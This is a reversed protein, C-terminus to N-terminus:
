VALKEDLDDLLDQIVALSFARNAEEVDETREHDRLDLALNLIRAGHQAVTPVPPLGPITDRHCLFRGIHDPFKSVLKVRETVTLGKVYHELHSPLPESPGGGAFPALTALVDLGLREHPTMKAAPAEPAAVPAEIADAEALAESVDPSPAGLIARTVRWTWSVGDWVLARAMALTAM